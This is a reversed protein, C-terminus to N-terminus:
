WAADKNRVIDIGEVVVNQHFKKIVFLFDTARYYKIYLLKFMYFAKCIYTGKHVRWTLRHYLPWM